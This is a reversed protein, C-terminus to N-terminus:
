PNIQNWFDPFSKEVCTYDDFELNPFLRKWPSFCMAIRHDYFTKIEM